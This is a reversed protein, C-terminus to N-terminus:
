IRVIGRGHEFTISTGYPTSETRMRNVIREATEASAMSPTGRDYRPRLMDSAVPHLIMQQLGSDSFTMMPVVSEWLSRDHPLPIRDSALSHDPTQPDLKFAEYTDAAYGRVTEYQFVFDGLSYCIPRDRYLEIGWTVHPGAGFFADAGADICAHALPQLFRAPTDPTRDSEHAHISVLVLRANRRAVQIADTLRKMDGAAAETAIDSTAGPAFTNGLWTLERQGETPPLM